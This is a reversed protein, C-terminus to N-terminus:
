ICIWVAVSTSCQFKYCNLSADRLLNCSPSRMRKLFKNCGALSMQWTIHPLSLATLHASKIRIRVFISIYPQYSHWHVTFKLIRAVIVILCPVKQFHDHVIQICSNQSSWLKRQSWAHHVCRQTPTTPHALYTFKYRKTVSFTKCITIRKVHTVRMRCALHQLYIAIYTYNSKCVVSATSLSNAVSAKVHGYKLDNQVFINIIVHGVCM